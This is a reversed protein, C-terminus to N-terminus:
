YALYQVFIPVWRGDPRPLALAFIGLNGHDHGTSFAVRAQVLGWTPTTVASVDPDPALKRDGWPGLGVPDFRNM